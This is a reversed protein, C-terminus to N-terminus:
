NMSCGRLNECACLGSATAEQCSGGEGRRSEDGDVNHLGRCSGREGGGGGGTQSESYGRDPAAVVEAKSDPNSQLPAGETVLPLAPHANGISGSRVSADLSAASSGPSTPPRSPYAAPAFGGATRASALSVRGAAALNKSSRRLSNSSSTSLM